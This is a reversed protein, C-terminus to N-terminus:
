AYKCRSWEQMYRMGTYMGQGAQAGLVQVCTDVGRHMSLSTRGQVYMGGYAGNMGAHEFSPLYM